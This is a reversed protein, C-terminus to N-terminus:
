RSQAIVTDGYRHLSEVAHKLSDAPIHAACWTVGLDALRGVAESHVDPNFDADGPGGGALTTFSIDIEARDRGAADVQKWLYDLMGRLDDLTELPVTRATTALGRPAPFPVWGDGVTAVRRRSLHSNGGIWIPIPREPKPNATQGRATFNCGEYSFDDTTWVGRMVEIAEDFLDNREEFDVGLARYEGKLYGTGVALVFRGDSMADITAASKAVLFPNRYPLVVVNPILQVRETVAATFALAAFPDLADHGGAELWRHTPAPHDTFGIGDFGAAEAARAFEVLGQRTAFEVSCRGAALPYTVSFKM